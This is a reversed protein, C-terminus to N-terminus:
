KLIPYGAEKLAKKMVKEDPVYSYTIEVRGTEFHPVAEDIFPLAELCDKVRKECHGCMM